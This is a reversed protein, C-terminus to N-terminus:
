SNGSDGGYDASNHGAERMIDQFNGKKSVNTADEETLLTIQQDTVGLLLRRNLFRVVMLGKRPGLPLQAEMLLAGKPLAGPRPMFNFKGYKRLAWVGFWLAGLLVGLIGLAQLYGGWSFTSAQAALNDGSAPMAAVKAAGQFAKDSAIDIVQSIAGSAQDLGHLIDRAAAHVTEELNSVNADAVGQPSLPPAAAGRIDRGSLGEGSALFPAWVLSKKPLRNKISRMAGM